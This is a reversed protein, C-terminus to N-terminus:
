KESLKIDNILIYSDSKNERLKELQTTNAIPEPRNFLLSNLKYYTYKTILQTKQYLQKHLKM